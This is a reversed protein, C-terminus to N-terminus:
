PLWTLVQSKERIEAVCNNSPWELESAIWRVDMGIIGNYLGCFEIIYTSESNKSIKEFNGEPLGRLQLDSPGWDRFEHCQQTQSEYACKSLGLTDM